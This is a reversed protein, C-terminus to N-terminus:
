PSCAAIDLYAALYARAPGNWMHQLPVQANPMDRVSCLSREILPRQASFGAATAFSLNDDRSAHCNRCNTAIVHEYVKRELLSSTWGLPVFSEATVAPGNPYWGAVLERNAESLAPAVEHNLRSIAPAQDRETFGARTSFTLTRQDFPLFSAGLVQNTTADYRAATGHCNLCNNPIALNDGVSDLQAENILTGTAGYVMFQMSNPAEFPPQYVMAVTAFSGRLDIAADLAERQPGGFEGYNAVACAVGGGPQAQCRMERGIGLDAGNYYTSTASEATIGFKTRFETITLPAAITQYYQATELPDIWGVRDLFRPRAASGAIDAPSVVVIGTDLQVGCSEAREIWTAHADICADADHFLAALVEGTAGIARVRLVGGQRWRSPNLQAPAALAHWEYVGTDTSSPVEGTITKAITIWADTFIQIEIAYGPLEHM